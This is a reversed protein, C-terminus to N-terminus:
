IIILYVNVVGKFRKGLMLGYFGDSVMKVVCIFLFVMSIIDLVYNCDGGYWNIKRIWIFIKM